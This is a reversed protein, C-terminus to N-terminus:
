AGGSVGKAQLYDELGWVSGERGSGSKKFGGFPMDVGLYDRNITVMGSRRKRAVRDARARDMTQIYNGLGYPTDNAISIAKAETDFPIMVLVPGFVEQRAIEMQNTM